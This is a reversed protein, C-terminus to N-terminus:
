SSLGGRVVWAVLAAIFAALVYLIGKDLMARKKEENTAITNVSQNLLALTTNLTNLSSSLNAQVEELKDVRRELQETM